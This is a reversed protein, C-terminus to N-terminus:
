GRIPEAPVNSHGGNYVGATRPTKDPLARYQLSRSVVALCSGAFGRVNSKQPVSTKKITSPEWYRRQWIGREKRKRRSGSRFFEKGGAQLYLQTFKRKILSWRIPFNSDGEPLTWIAHLHDPLLVIAPMAFSWDTRITEI